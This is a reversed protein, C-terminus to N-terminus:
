TTNITVSYRVLAPGIRTDIWLDLFFETNFPAQVTMEYWGDGRDVALSSRGTGMPDALDNSYRSARVLATDNIGSVFVRRGAGVPVGGAQPQVALVHYNGTPDGQVLILDFSDPAASAAAAYHFGADLAASDPATGLADTFRDSLAIAADDSQFTQSHDIAPSRNGPDHDLYFGVSFRADASVNNLGAFGAWPADAVNNSANLTLLDAPSGGLTDATSVGVNGFFVNDDVRPSTGSVWLGGGDQALNFALTANTVAADAATDAFGGGGAGAYNAGIRSNALVVNAGTASAYFGGGRLASDNGSIVSHRLVMPATSGRLVLGGGVSDSRNGAVVLNTATLTANDAHLAGGGGNLTVTGAQLVTNRWLRTGNLTVSVGSQLDLAGGRGDIGDPADVRNGVLLGDNFVVDTAPDGDGVRVAIAGGAASATNDAFTVDHFTVQSAAVRAGGGDSQGNGDAIRLGFFHTNRCDSVTLPRQTGSPSLQTRWQEDAARTPLAVLDDLSGVFVLNDCSNTLDLHWDAPPVAPDTNDAMLVYTVTAPDGNLAGAASAAAPSVYATPWSTGDAAGASAQPDIFVVRADAVGPDTGVTLEIDSGVGDFDGDEAPWVVLDVTAENSVLGATDSVEYTLATRVTSAASADLTLVGTAPDISVAIAPANTVTLSTPDLAGDPDVDNALLAVSSSTGALLILSDNAAVPADNVFTVDISVTAPAGVLGANDAAQYTVTDLGSFQGSSVYRLRGDPEISATGNLPNGVIMVSSPDLTGDIDSDNALVDILVDTREPVSVADDVLTPVDNVANVTINVFLPPSVLGSTDAITVRLSDTGSANADPVYRVALADTVIATGLAPSASIRLSAVDLRDEPDRASFSLDLTDDEDVIATSALTLTPAQNTGTVNVSVPVDLSLRDSEDRVRYAFVDSGDFDPDPTYEIRRTAANVVATGYAPAVAVEVTAGDLGGEDPDRDNALVDIAVSNNEAVGASDPQAIPPDDNRPAVTVTLEGPGSRLGDVNAVTYVIRAEGFGDPIPTVVLTGVAPDIQVGVPGTVSEVRISAFDLPLGNSEDNALVAVTVDTDEPTVASDDVTLPPRSTSVLVRREDSVARNGAADTAVFVLVNTSGPAFRDPLPLDGDLRPVVVTTGPRNDTVEVAAFFPQLRGDDLAVGEGLPDSVTIDAPLATFQPPALDPLVASVQCPAANVSALPTDAYQDPLNNRFRLIELDLSLTDPLETGDGLRVPLGYRAGDLACDSLDEVFADILGADPADQGVAVAMRNLAGASGGLMMALVRSAELGDAPDLPNVAPTAFVDIGFADAGQGRVVTAVPDFDSGFSDARMRRVLASTLPTVATSPADVFLVSELVLGSVDIERLGSASGSDAPDFYLGGTSRVLYDPRAADLTFCWQGNEDTQGAAVAPAIPDGGANLNFIEVTAGRVPGLMVQGCVQEPPQDIVARVVVTVTAMSIAAGDSLMYTFTATGSFGTAPTFVLRDDGADLDTANDDRAVTGNASQSFALLAIADGDVDRDNVLVDINVPMGPESRAADDVAVPAVNGESVATGVDIRLLGDSSGGRGDSVTYTLMVSGTFAEPVNVRVADGDIAATGVTPVGIATLSLADGDPDTDNNLVSVTLEGGQGAVVEDLATLPSQNAQQPPPLAPPPDSLPPPDTPAPAATPDSGSGGGSGCATLWACALAVLWREGFPFSM